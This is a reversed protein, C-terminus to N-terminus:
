KHVLFTGYQFNLKGRTAEIIYCAIRVPDVQGLSFGAAEVGQQLLTEGTRHRGILREIGQLQILSSRRRLAEGRFRALVTLSPTGHIVCANCAAGVLVEVRRLIHDVYVLVMWHRILTVIYSAM